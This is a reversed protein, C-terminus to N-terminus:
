PASTRSASAPPGVDAAAQGLGRIRDALSRVDVARSTDVEVLEGKLALPGHTGDEFRQRLEAARERDVHGPHRERETYRSLLVDLPASCHIQAPRHRPLAAFEAEQSGAFFNAEIVLPRAAALLEGCVAFLVGYAAAGLRRSWDANGAGLSDYLAEKIEDKTLLPLELATALGRALTTKGAAPMGTVIVLLPDTL